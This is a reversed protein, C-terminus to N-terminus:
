FTLVLESLAVRGKDTLLGHIYFRSIEIMVENQNFVDHPFLKTDLIADLMGLRFRSIEEVKIDSRFLGEEIGRELNSRIHPLHFEDENKRFFQWSEPYYKKMEYILMPSALQLTRSIYHLVEVLEELANQTKQRIENMVIKEGQSHAQMVAHVIAAKDPFTQYITKKSVGLERAIDDMSINRIGYRMFLIQAQRLIRNKTDM